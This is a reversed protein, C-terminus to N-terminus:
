FDFINNRLNELIKGANIFNLTTPLEVSKSLITINTNEPPAVYYTYLTKLIISTFIITDNAGFSIRGTIINRTTVNTPRIVCFCPVPLTSFWYTANVKMDSITSSFTKTDDNCLDLLYSELVVFNPLPPRALTVKTALRFSANFQIIPYERKKDATPYIYRRLQVTQKVPVQINYKKILFPVAEEVPLFFLLEELETIYKTMGCPIIITRDIQKLYITTTASVYGKDVKIECITNSTARPGPVANDFCGTLKIM